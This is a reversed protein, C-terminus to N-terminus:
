GILLEYKVVPFGNVTASSVYTFGFNQYYSTLKARPDCDLRVYKVGNTCALDVVSNLIKYGFGKGKFKPLIALKHIFYSENPPVEPWFLHDNNQIFLMGYIEHESRFFHLENLEYTEKLHATDAQHYTWLSKGTNNLHHIVDLLIDSAVVWDEESKASILKM